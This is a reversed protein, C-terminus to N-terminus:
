VVLAARKETASSSPAVTSSCRRSAAPTRRTSAAGSLPRSSRRNAAPTGPVAPVGGSGPAAAPPACGHVLEEMGRQDHAQQALARLARRAHQEAAREPEQRERQDGHRAARGPQLRETEAGRERENEARAHDAAFR